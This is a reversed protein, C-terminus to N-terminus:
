GTIWSQAIGFLERLWFTPLLFARTEAPVAYPTLGCARAVRFARYEHYNNTVIAVSRSLGREEIIARSFDLNEWTSTSAEELLIRDERIGRRILETRICSAESVPENEGQGGSAICVADPHANLYDAAADIREVLSLSPGEPRVRCGLVIVTAEEPPAKRCAQAMLVTCVAAFVVFLAAAAILVGKLGGRLGRGFRWLLLLGASLALGALNGINVVRMLLMPGAFFVIGAIGTILLLM